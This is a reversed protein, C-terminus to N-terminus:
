EKELMEILESVEKKASLYKQELDLIKEQAIKMEEKFNESEHEKEELKKESELIAYDKENIVDRLRQNEAVLDSKEQNLRDIINKFSKSENWIRDFEKVSRELKENHKKVQELEDAIQFSALVATRTEGLKPNSRDIERILKDIQSAIGRIYDESGDGVITYEIGNIIVTAKQRESM